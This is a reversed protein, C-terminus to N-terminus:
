EIEPKIDYAQFPLNSYRCAALGFVGFVGTRFSVMCKDENHKVDHIEETSWQTKDGEWRCVVPLELFIVHPPWRRVVSYLAM